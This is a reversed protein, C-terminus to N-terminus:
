TIRRAIERLADKTLFKQVLPFLIQNEKHIHNVFLQVVERAQLRLQHLPVRGPRTRGAVVRLTGQLQKLERRLTRHEARM